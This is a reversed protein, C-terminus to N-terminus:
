QYVKRYVKGNELEIGNRGFLEEVTVFEYGQKKLADIAMLAGEVSNEYIDHMLIIDGPEVESVICSSIDTCTKGTWDLTDVSWLIIPANIWSKISNNVDGYPPRVCIVDRMTNQEIVQSCLLLEQKQETDNLQLLNKHHFTHNGIQHGEEAMRQIIDKNEEVQMGILFFTAKVGREKLGDLLVDTTGAKPGDDFTLAILKGTQNVSVHEDVDMSGGSVTYGDSNEGKGSLIHENSTTYAQRLMGIVCLAIVSMALVIVPVKLRVSKLRDGLICKIYSYGGFWLFIGYSLLYRIANIIM